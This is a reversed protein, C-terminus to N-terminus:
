YKIVTEEVEHGEKVVDDDKVALFDPIVFSLKEPTEFMPKIDLPLKETIQEELEESIMVKKLADFVARCAEEAAFVSGMAAKEKIVDLFENKTM